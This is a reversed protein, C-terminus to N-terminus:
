YDFEVKEIKKNLAELKEQELVKKYEIPLVKIFQTVYTSWKDLICKALPSNTYLYHRSILDKLEKNDTTDEILSLEVMGMNCFYDFNGSTNLVYALGGSMGAAFNRGTPGLVVTRGGTMYECCHDGTGEVVAIVGSNRVCFREGAMGNIYVEGATAGYLVTNGIIINEEPKFTSGLPPVVVIKGGSLGKGLYDNADGELKFSMGYTLFAGFSQGASGKFTANITDTPLGEGGFRKAVQGALMAGATRDTNNIEKIIDVKEKRELAPEALRILERDLVKDIKHNQLKSARISNTLNEKPTFLLKSLDVYKAKWHAESPNFNILESHGIVDDLKTYGMDALIERVDQAIFHFFNLVYEHKGMFHKRLKEDQTAVGVPCTNLHCKRMMICGLTILAATSFGYEEAGLLAAVMVDKGTKLQGDAQLRVQGRLNNM